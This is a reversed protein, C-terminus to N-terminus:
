IALLDDSMSAWRAVFYSVLPYLILFSASIPSGEPFIYSMSLLVAFPVIFLVFTLVILRTQLVSTEVRLTKRNRSEVINMRERIGGQARVITEFSEYPRLATPTECSRDSSLPHFGNMVSFLAISRSRGPTEGLESVDVLSQLDSEGASRLSWYLFLKRSELQSRAEEERRVFRTLTHLRGVLTQLASMM